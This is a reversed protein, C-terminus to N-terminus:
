PNNFSVSRCCAEMMLANACVGLGHSSGVGATVSIAKYGNGFSQFYRSDQGEISTMEM